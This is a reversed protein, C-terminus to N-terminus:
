FSSPTLRCGKDALETLDENDSASLPNDQLRIDTDERCRFSRAFREISDLRNQSLWLIELDDMLDLFAISSIENTTLILERLSLLGSIPGIDQIRNNSLNLSELNLFLELGNLDSINLSSCTLETVELAAAEPVDSEWVNLAQRLCIELQEDNVREFVTPETPMVEPACMVAPPMILVALCLTKLRM